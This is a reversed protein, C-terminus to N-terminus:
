KQLKEDPVFYNKEEALLTVAYLEILSQLNANVFDYYKFQDKYYDIEEEDKAADIQLTIKIKNMLTYFDLDEQDFTKDEITVIEKPLNDGQEEEKEAEIDAGEDVDSDNIEANDKTSCGVLLIVVILILLKYSVKM